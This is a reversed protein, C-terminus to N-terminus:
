YVYGCGGLWPKCQYDAMTAHDPDTVKSLPKGCEPCYHYTMEVMEKKEIPPKKKNDSM